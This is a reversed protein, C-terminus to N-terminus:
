LEMLDQVVLPMKADQLELGFVAVKGHQVLPMLQRPQILLVLEQLVPQPLLLQLLMTVFVMPVELSHKAHLKLEKTHQVSPQLNLADQEMQSADKDILQAPLM